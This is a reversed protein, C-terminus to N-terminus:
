LEQAHEPSDWFGQVAQTRTVTGSNLAQDWAALGAADPARNLVNNYLFRVFSNTSLSSTRTIFEASNAFGQVMQNM